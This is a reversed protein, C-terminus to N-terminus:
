GTRTMIFLALLAPFVLCYLADWRNFKHKRFSRYHGNFCRCTMAESAAESLKQSKLFTTGLIGGIGSNKWSTKGVSRLHVAELLQNSCRGLISLYRVTMDLTMVFLDPCHLSSFASTVSRWSMVENMVALVLVSEFVKMTVTLMTQPSGMFVSPLMILLSLLVPLILAKLVRAIQEPKMLALRLLEVAIVTVVFVANQSLACLLICLIAAILRLVPAIRENGGSEVGDSKLLRSLMEVIKINLKM